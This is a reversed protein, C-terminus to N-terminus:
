AEWSQGEKLNARRRWARVARIGRATAEYLTGSRMGEDTSIPSFALDHLDIDKSALEQPDFTIEEVWGRRMGWRSAGDVQDDTLRRINSASMPEPVDVDIDPGLLWSIRELAWEDRMSSM